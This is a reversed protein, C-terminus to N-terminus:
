SSSDKGNRLAKMCDLIHFGLICKSFCTPCVWEPICASGKCKSSMDSTGCIACREILIEDIEM